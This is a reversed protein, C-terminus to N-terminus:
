DDATRLWDITNISKKWFKRLSFKTCKANYLVSKKMIQANLETYRGSKLLTIAQAAILNAKALSKPDEDIPIEILADNCPTQENFLHEYSVLTAKAAHSLALLEPSQASVSLPSDPLASNTGEGWLWVGNPRQNTPQDNMNENSQHFIMQTENMRSIWFQARPGKPLVESLPQNEANNADTTCVEPDDQLGLIFLSPWLLVPRIIAEGFSERLIKKYHESQTGVDQPNDLRRVYVDNMGATYEVLECCLYYPCASLAPDSRALLTSIPVTTPQHQTLREIWYDKISEDRVSTLHARSFLLDLAPTPEAKPLAELKITSSVTISLTNM